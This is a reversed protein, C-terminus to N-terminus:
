KLSLKREMQRRIKDLVVVKFYILPFNAKVTAILNTSHSAKFLVADNHKVNKKVLENLELLNETHLIKIKENIRAEEAITSSFNGYCILIDINSKAVIKGVERHMVESSDGLEAIDGLVAIRRGDKKIPLEGLTDIASKMSKVSANFCDIYFIRNGVNVINQRMGKPRYSKLGQVAKEPSIGSEIGAAFALLADTINHIGHMYLKAEIQGQSFKINFTIGKETRQINDAYYDASSNKISVKIVKRNWITTDLTRDDSDIIVCGDKSMGETIDTVGKILDEYSDFNGLHSEGINTIVAINPQIIKSISEASEPDGEHVEQIYCDCERPIRQVLYGVLTTMNNNEVDCFVQYTQSCVARIMDKTTTKGVSGTVAITKTNFQSKIKGCLKCYAEMVDPVVICPYEGEQKDTLLVCAGKAIAKGPTLNGYLPLAAYLSGPLLYFDWACIGTLLADPNTGNQLKVSNIDVELIKCVDRISLFREKDTKM